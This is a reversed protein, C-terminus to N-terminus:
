RDDGRQQPHDHRQLRPRTTPSSKTSMWKRISFRNPIARGASSSSDNTVTPSMASEIPGIVPAPPVDGREALQSDTVTGNGTAEGSWDVGSAAWGIVVGVLVLCFTRMPHSRPTPPHPRSFDTYRINPPSQSPALTPRPPAIALSRGLRMNRALRTKKRGSASDAIAWCNVPHRM